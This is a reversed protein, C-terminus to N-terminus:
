ESGSDDDAEESREQQKQRQQQQQQQDSEECSAVDGICGSADSGVEAEAGVGALSAAAEEGLVGQGGAAVM